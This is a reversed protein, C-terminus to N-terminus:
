LFYDALAICCSMGSWATVYDVLCGHNFFLYSLFLREIQRQDICSHADCKQLLLENSSM